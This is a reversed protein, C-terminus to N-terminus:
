EASLRSRFRQYFLSAILLIVGVATFGAIRHVGGLESLDSLFLKLLTIGFLAIAFYRIPAYRRRIGVVVLVVAYIAWAISVTVNAALPAGPVGGHERWYSSIEATMWAVSLLTALGILGAVTKSHNEAPRRQHAYALAYLLALVCATAAARANLFPVFGSSTDFFDGTLLRAMALLLLAAGGLRMLPRGLSLGLWAVAAGEAAWGITVWAGDFLLAIATAGFAFALVLFHPTFQGPSGAVGRSLLVNWAALAAALVGSQGPANAEVLLYGGAFLGLGNVHLLLVDPWAIPGNRRRASEVQAILHLAYVAVLAAGAPVLWSAGTHETLWGLFPWAMALWVILRLWDRKWAAACVIGALSAAIVYVLFPIPHDRLIAVSAIHYLVPASALVATAVRARLGAGAFVSPLAVLFLGCFLTLFLQTVFYKSPRYHIGLWNGVTAATLLFGVVPLEPWSRRRSLAVTLGVLVANYGFLAVQRDRDGGIMFPTLFGGVVAGLALGPSQQRDAEIGAALSVAFLMGFATTESVLDYFNFAAYISLYLVAFGGGELVQGYSTLERRAFRRGAAILAAGTLLGIVVRLTETIWENDFAYKVFFGVGLVLTATGVYLM